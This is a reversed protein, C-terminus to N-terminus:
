ANSEREKLVQEAAERTLFVTKNISDPSLVFLEGKGAPVILILLEMIENDVIGYLIGDVPLEVFRSRDAFHDCELVSVVQSEDDSLEDRILCIDYHMCEKCTM